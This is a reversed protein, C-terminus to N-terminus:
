QATCLVRGWWRTLAATSCTSVSADTSSSSDSTQYRIGPRALVRLNWDAGATERVHESRVKNLQRGEM